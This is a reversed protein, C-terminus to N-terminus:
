AKTVSFSQTYMYGLPTLYRAIVTWGSNSRKLYFVEGDVTMTNGSYDTVSIAVVDGVSLTSKSQETGRVFRVKNAYVEACNNTIGLYGLEEGLDVDSELAFTWYWGIMGRDHLYRNFQADSGGTYYAKDLAVNKTNLYQIVDGIDSMSWVKSGLGELRAVPTNPLYRYATDIMTGSDDFTILILKDLMDYEEAVSKIVPVIATTDTKIELVLIVDTDKILDLVQDLSPLYEVIDNDNDDKLYRKPTEGSKRLQLPYSQLESLSMQEATKNGDYTTTNAVQDDHIIIIHGDTTLKGDLELHTAGNEIAIRVASLSNEYSANSCGRHAVNMATRPVSKETYTALADYVDTFHESVVGYAGSGVCDYIDMFRYSDPVAWVTKFRAQIYTVVDLTAASQPMIAVTAKNANLESVLAAPSEVNNCFLMGGVWPLADRLKKVIAPDTSAVSIDAIRFENKMFAIFRDAAAISEIKVIPIIKGRIKSYVSYFSGMDSNDAGFVNGDDGYRLIIDSPRVDASIARKLAAEKVADAIVAPGNILGSKMDYNANIFNDDRPIATISVSSIALTSKNVMVSFGGEDIITPIKNSRESLDWSTIKVGDIYDTVETGVLTIRFTHQKGDDIRVGVNVVDGDGAGGSAYASPASRGDMRLNVFYSEMNGNDLMKNHFMVSIFRGTDVWDVMRFKMSFDFNTFTYGTAIRYVAGYYKGVAGDKDNIIMEGNEYRTTNDKVNSKAFPQWDAPLASFNAAYYNNSRYIEVSSLALVSRSVMLAFGGHEIAGGLFSDRDSISRNHLLTGDMYTKLTKGELALTFTHYKGDDLKIGKNVSGTDHATSGDYCSVASGGNVRYNVFYGIKKGDAGTATHFMVSIFRGDDVFDNIKFKLNVIFDTYTRDTAFEYIAGYYTAAAGSGSKNYIIMDGDAYTTTTKSTECKDYLAFTDPLADFDSASYDLTYDDPIPVATGDADAARTVAYTSAATEPQLADTDPASSTAVAGGNQMVNDDAHSIVGTSTICFAFLLAIAFSIVTKIKKM